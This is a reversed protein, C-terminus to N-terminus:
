WAAGGAKEIVYDRVQAPDIIDRHLVPRRSTLSVPPTMGLAEVLREVADADDAACSTCRRLSLASVFPSATALVIDPSLEAARRREMAGPPPPTRTM